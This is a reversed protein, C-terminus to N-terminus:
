VVTTEWHGVPGSEYITIMKDTISSAENVVLIFYPSKTYPLIKYKRKRSILCNTSIALDFHYIDLFSIDHLFIVLFFTVLCSQLIM